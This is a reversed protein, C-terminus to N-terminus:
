LKVPISAIDLIDLRTGYKNISVECDLRHNKMLKIDSLKSLDGKYMLSCTQGNEMLVHIVHYTSGDKRTHEQSGTIILDKTFKMDKSGGDKKKGLKTKGKKPM